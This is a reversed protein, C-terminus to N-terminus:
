NVPILQYDSYRYIPAFVNQYYWSQIRRFDYIGADACFHMIIDYGEKSYKRPNTKFEQEFLSLFVLDYEDFLEINRSNPIHVNLEMLNTIDLNDYSKIAEFTFVTSSSDMSGISGLMRSIFFRDRSLLLVNQHEDFYRRISDVKTDVIVFSKVPNNTILNKNNKFKYKLYLALEEEKKDSLIMIREDLKNEILYQALIDAQAKHTLAIQYVSSYKKIGENDRSLPSVLIKMNDQGYKRCLMKFLKSYMPGIIIDMNDLQNSLIIKRVELSDANTDFTHLVIRKGARRLSDIALEVGIHFSLAAESKNYYRNLIDLTDENQNFMTDNKILYYPMLLAINTVSSHGQKWALKYNADERDIPIYLLQNYFLRKDLENNAKIESIKVKHTKAISRLSEGGKVIHKVFKKGSFYVTDYSSQASLISVSFVLFIFGIQRIMGM